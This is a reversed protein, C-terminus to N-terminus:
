MGKMNAMGDSDGGSTGAGPGLIQDLPVVPVRVTVSGARAFRLTVPITEGVKFTVEPHELMAHDGGPALTAQSHAPVFLAGLRGMTDVSGRDDESMLMSTTAASSSIAVLRDPVSGTNRVTLYVAAVNPSAPDPLFPDIVELAGLRAAIRGSTGDSAHSSAGCGASAL